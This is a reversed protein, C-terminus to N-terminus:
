ERSGSADEDESLMQEVMRGIYRAGDDHLQNFPTNGPQRLLQGYAIWFSMRMLRSRSILSRRALDDMVALWDEDVLIEIRQVSPLRRDM